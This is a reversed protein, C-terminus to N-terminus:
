PLPVIRPTLLVVLEVHKKTVVTSRGFWGGSTTSSKKESSARERGFGAVVITEGDGVRAIM